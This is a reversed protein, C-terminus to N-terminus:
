LAHRSYHQTVYNNGTLVNLYHVSLQNGSFKKMVERQFRAAIERCFDPRNKLTLILEAISRTEEQKFVFGNVSDRVYNEIGSINGCIPVAGVSACILLSSFHDNKQPFYLAVDCSEPEFFQLTPIIHVQESIGLDKSLQRLHESLPGTGWLKLQITRDKQALYHGITLFFHLNNNPVFSCYAGVTFPMDTKKISLPPAPFPLQEVQLDPMGALEKLFRYSLPSHALLKIHAPLVPALSHFWTEWLSVKPVQTSLVSVLIKSKASGASLYRLARQWDRSIIWASETIQNKKFFGKETPGVKVEQVSISTKLEWICSQICAQEEPGVDPFLFIRISNM